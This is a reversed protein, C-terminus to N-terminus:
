TVIAYLLLLFVHCREICQSLLILRWRKRNEAGESLYRALCVKRTKTTYNGKILLIVGKLGKACLKQPKLGPGYSAM